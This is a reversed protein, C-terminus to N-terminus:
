TLLVEQVGEKFSEQRQALRILGLNVDAVAM